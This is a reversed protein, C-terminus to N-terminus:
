QCCQNGYSIINILIILIKNLTWCGKTNCSYCLLYIEAYSIVIANQLQLASVCKNSIAVDSLGLQYTFQQHPM